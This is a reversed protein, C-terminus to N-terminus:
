IELEGADAESARMGRLTPTLGMDALLRRLQTAEQRSVGYHPSEGAVGNHHKVVPGFKVVHQMAAQYIAWRHCYLTIISRDTKDLRGAADLDGCIRDWELLAEGDLDDPPAPRNAKTKIERM